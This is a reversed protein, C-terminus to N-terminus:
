AETGTTPDTWDPNGNEDFKMVYFDKNFLDAVNITTTTGGWQTFAWVTEVEVFQRRGSVVAPRKQVDRYMYFDQNASKCRIFEGNEKMYVLATALDFPETITSLDLLTNNTTETM